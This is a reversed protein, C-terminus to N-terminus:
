EGTVDPPLRDLLRRAAPSDGLALRRRALRAALGYRGEDAADEGLLVLAQPLDHGDEQPRDALRCAWALLEFHPGDGADDKLARAADFALLAGDATAADEVLARLAHRAATESWTRSRESPPAAYAPRDDLLWRALVAHLWPDDRVAVLGELAQAWAPLGKGAPPRDDLRLRLAAEVACRSLFPEAYGARAAELLTQIAGAADGAQRRAEGLYALAAPREAEDKAARELADIGDAGRRASVYAWGRRLLVRPRDRVPAPLRGLWDGLAGLDPLAPDSGVRAVLRDLLADTAERTTTGGLRHAMDALSPEDARGVLAGASVAAALLVLGLCLRRRM